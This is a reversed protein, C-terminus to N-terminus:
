LTELFSLVNYGFGDDTTQSSGATHYTYLNVYDGKALTLVGSGTPYVLSNTFASMLRSLRYEPSSVGNLGVAVIAERQDPVATIQVGGVVMIRCARRATLRIYTGDNSMWAGVNGSVTPMVTALVRTWTATSISQTVTGTGNGFYKGSARIRGDSDVIWDNTGADICRFVVCEGAIHLNSWETGSADVNNIKDGSASLLSLVFSSSGAALTVGIRDGVAAAAPLTFSRNATLATFVHLTGVVGTVNATGDHSAHELYGQQAKVVRSAPQVQYVKTASTLSIASGTTSSELTGRSLTTGSHTYICDRAVEINDGDIFTIDFSKGNDGSVFPLYGGSLASALTVTGTGPTGTISHGIANKYTPM